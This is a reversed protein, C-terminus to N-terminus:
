KVEKSETAVVESEFYTEKEVISAIKEPNTSQKDYTVTALGSTLDLKVSEVGEVSTMSKEVSKACFKCSMGSIKIVTTEKDSDGEGSAFIQNSNIGFGIILITLVIFRIKSM